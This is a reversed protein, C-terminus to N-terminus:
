FYSKYTLSLTSYYRKAVERVKHAPLNEVQTTPPLVMECVAQKPSVLVGIFLISLAWGGRCITNNARNPTLRTSFILEEQERFGGRSGQGELM